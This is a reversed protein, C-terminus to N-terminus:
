AVVMNFSEHLTDRNATANSLIDDNNQCYKLIILNIYMIGKIKLCSNFSDHLTDRAATANSLIDNNGHSANCLDTM